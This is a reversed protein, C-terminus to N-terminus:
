LVEGLEINAPAFINYNRWFLPGHHETEELGLYEDIYQHIMEHYVIATAHDFGKIGVPNFEIVVYRNTAYHQAHSDNWRKAFFKPETLLNAFITKNLEHWIGVLTKLKM